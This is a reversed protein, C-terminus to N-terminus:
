HPLDDLFVLINGYAKVCVSHPNNFVSSCSQILIILSINLTRLSTNPAKERTGLPFTRVATQILLGYM